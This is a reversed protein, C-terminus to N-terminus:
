PSTRRTRAWGIAPTAESIPENAHPGVADAGVVRRSEAKARAETARGVRGRAPSVVKNVDTM